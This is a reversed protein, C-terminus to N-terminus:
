PPTPSVCCKEHFGMQLRYMTGAVVDMDFTVPAACYETKYYETKDYSGRSWRISEALKELGQDNNTTGFESPEGWNMIENQASVAFGATETDKTFTADGVSFGGPGLINVAYKFTGTFDCGEGSDGGTVANWFANNQGVRNKGFNITGKRSSEKQFGMQNDAFNGLFQAHSFAVRSGASAAIVGAGQGLNRNDAFIVFSATVNSGAAFIVGAGVGKQTNGVCEVSELACTSGALSIAAGHDTGGGGFAVQAEVRVHRLSLRQNHLQPRMEFQSMSSQEYKSQPMTIEYVALTFGCTNLGVGCRDGSTGCNSAFDDATTTGAAVGDGM